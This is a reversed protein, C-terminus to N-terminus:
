CAINKRKNKKGLSAQRLNNQQEEKQVACLSVEMELSKVFGDRQAHGPHVLNEIARGTGIRLIPQWNKLTRVVLGVVVGWCTQVPM